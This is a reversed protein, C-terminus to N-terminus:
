IKVLGGPFESVQELNLVVPTGRHCLLNLVQCQWQLLEPQQQPMPEIEVRPVKWM